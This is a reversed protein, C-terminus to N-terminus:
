FSASRRFLMALLFCAVPLVFAYSGIELHQIHMQRLAPGLVGALCLMGAVIMSIHVRNPPDPPLMESVGGIGKRSEVVQDSCRMTVANFHYNIEGGIMRVVVVVTLKARKVIVPAQHTIVRVVGIAIEVM